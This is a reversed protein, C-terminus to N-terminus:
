EAIELANGRKKTVKYSFLLITIEFLEYHNMPLMSISFITYLVEDKFMEKQREKWTELEDVIKYALSNDLVTEVFIIFDNYDIVFKYDQM